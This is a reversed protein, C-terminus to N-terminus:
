CSKISTGHNCSWTFICPNCLETPEFTGGIALRLEDTSLETITEKVLKLSRTSKM